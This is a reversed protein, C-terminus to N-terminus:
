TRTGSPRYQWAVKHSAIVPVPVIILKNKYLGKIDSVANAPSSWAPETNM